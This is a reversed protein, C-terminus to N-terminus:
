APINTWAFITLAVIGVCFAPWAVFLGTVGMNGAFNKYDPLEAALLIGTMTALSGLITLLFGALSVLLITRLHPHPAFKEVFTGVFVIAGTSLGTLYKLYDGWVDVHTLKDHKKKEDDSM